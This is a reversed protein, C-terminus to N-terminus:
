VELFLDAYSKGTNKKKQLISKWDGAAAISAYKRILELDLKKFRNKQFHFELLMSFKKMGDRAKPVELKCLAIGQSELFAKIGLGEKEQEGEDIDISHLSPMKNKSWLMQLNKARLPTLLMVVDPTYTTRASGMVDSMDGGWTGEKMNPKRAESIVIVPDPSLADKLKKMEGIRWKDIENENLFKTNTNTPWVQLYDVVVIARKCGTKSKVSEVYGAIMKADLVPCSATELIQVREDLAALIQQARVIKEQQSEQWKGFVFTRYDVEALLLIMRRFIEDASMELSVYILCADDETMVADIGLQIALATKGANPAAALLNLGRLGLFYENFEEIIGTKLGLYKKGKHLSLFAEEKKMREKTSLISLTKACSQEIGHLSEKLDELLSEPSEAGTLARDEMKCSHQAIKRLASFRRLEAVYEEVYVSAGTFQVLNIVYTIGGIQTLLGRRKLEECLLHVDVVSEEQDKLVSFIMQHQKFYFDEQQLSACAIKLSDSSTIACGLVMMETEYSHPLTKM